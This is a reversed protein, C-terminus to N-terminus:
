KWLVLQGNELVFREHFMQGLQDCKINESSELRGMGGFFVGFFVGLVGWFVVVWCVFLCFVVVFFGM